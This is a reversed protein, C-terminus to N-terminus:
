SKYSSYWIGPAAKLFQAIKTDDHIISTANDWAVGTTKVVKIQTGISLLNTLTIKPTTGDVSFDAQGTGDINQNMVVDGAPSYPAINVNFVSYPEKKLRINGIFFAWYDSDNNFVSGSTHSVICRYTYSGNNVITGITYSINASWVASTDYGGVFVEIENVSKPIFGLPVTDTGNSVITSTSVSDQYPITETRGIDQAFTGARVFNNVGTGLTGRRLNILTNGIKGFYEIREGRIEIVGAINANQVPEEFNSADELEISQSNWYLDNVLKTRKNANLRKYITRNFIDKFQMYSIGPKIINSGFTMLTVTDNINPNTTLKISSHDDNLKYDVGPTLLTTNVIAWIYSENLVSRDLVITGGAISQYSYFEMSDPTLNVSSDVTVTTRQLDLTDHRYASFVEVVDTSFYPKSFTIQKTSPDFIYGQGTNVSIVLQSGSYQKYADKTIKISVGGLDLVYDKGNVLIVGYVSVIVDAYSVTYPAV